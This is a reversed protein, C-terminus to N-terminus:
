RRRAKGAPFAVGTSALQRQCQLLLRLWAQAEAPTSAHDLGHQCRALWAPLQWDLWAGPSASLSAPIRVRRSAWTRKCQGKGALGGLRGIRRMYQRFGADGLRARQTAISKQVSLLRYHPNPAQALNTGPVACLYCPLCAPQLVASGACASPRKGTLARRALAQRM